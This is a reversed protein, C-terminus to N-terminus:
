LRVWKYTTASSKIHSVDEHSVVIKWWGGELPKWKATWRSTQSGAKTTLAVDFSSHLVWKEVKKAHGIGRKVSVTEMRYYSVTVTGAEAPQMQGKVTYSHGKHVHGTIQPKVLRAAVQVTVPTSSNEDSIWAKYTTTVKPKVWVSPTTETAFVTLTTWTSAGAPMALIKAVAPAAIPSVTLKVSHPYTVKAASASLTLTGEASALAAVAFVSAAALAVALATRM